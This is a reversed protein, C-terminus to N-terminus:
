QDIIAITETELVYPELFGKPMHGSFLGVTQIAEVCILRVIEGLYRGGTLFEAPQFDPQKHNTNLHDDWRTRPLVRKGFMSLETNVLVHKARDFWSRPRNGFKARAFASVPLHIAANM